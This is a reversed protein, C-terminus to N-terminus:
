TIAYTALSIKSFTLSCIGTNDWHEMEVPQKSDRDDAPHRKGPDGGGLHGSCTKLIPARAQQAQRQINQWLSAALFVCTNKPIIGLYTVEGGGGRLVNLVKPGSKALFFTSKKLCCVCTKLFLPNGSGGKNLFLEQFIGTKSRKGCCLSIGFCVFSLGFLIMM